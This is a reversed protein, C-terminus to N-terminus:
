EIQWCTTARCAGTTAVSAFASGQRRSWGATRSSPTRAYAPTGIVVRLPAVSPARHAM